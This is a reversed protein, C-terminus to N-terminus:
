RTFYIVQRDPNNLKDLKTKYIEEQQQIIKNVKINKSRSNLLLQYYEFIVRNKDIQKKIALYLTTIAKWRATQPREFLYLGCLSKINDLLSFYLCLNIHDKSTAKSFVKLNSLYEESAKVVLNLLLKRINVIKSFLPMAVSQAKTKIIVARIDRPDIKLNSKHLHYYDLFDQENKGESETLFEKIFTLKQFVKTYKIQDQALLSTTLNNASKDLANILKQIDTIYSQTETTIKIITSKRREKKEKLDTSIKIREEQKLTALYKLERGNILAQDTLINNFKNLLIDITVEQNFIDLLQLDKDITPLPEHRQGYFSSHKSSEKLFDSYNYIYGKELLDSDYLTPSNKNDFLKKQLEGAFEAVQNPTISTKVNELAWKRSLTTIKKGDEYALGTMLARYVGSSCNSSFFDYSVDKSDCIIQYWLLMKEYFLGGIGEVNSKDENVPLDVSYDPLREDHMGMRYQLYESFSEDRQLKSDFELPSVISSRKTKPPLLIFETDHFVATIHKNQKHDEHEQTPDPVLNIYADVNIHEQPAETIDNYDQLQLTCETTELIDVEKIFVDSPNKYFESMLLVRKDGKQDNYSIKVRPSYPKRANSDQTLPFLRKLIEKGSRPISESIKPYNQTNVKDWVYGFRVDDSKMMIMASHLGFKNDIWKQPESLVNPKRKSISGWTLVKIFYSM